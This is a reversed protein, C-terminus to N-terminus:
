RPLFFFHTIASVPYQNANENVGTFDDRSNKGGMTSAKLTTKFKSCCGFIVFPYVCLTRLCSRVNCLFVCGVVNVHIYNRHAPHVPSVGRNIPDIRKHVHTHKAIWHIQPAVIHINSLLLLISPQSLHQSDPFSALQYSYLM